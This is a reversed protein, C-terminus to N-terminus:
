SVTLKNKDVVFGDVLVHTIPVFSQFYTATFQYCKHTGSSAEFYTDKGGKVHKFQMFGEQLMVPDEGNWNPCKSCMIFDHTTLDEFVYVTYAGEEKSGVLRAKICKENKQEM